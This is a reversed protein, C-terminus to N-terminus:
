GEVALFQVATKAERRFDRSEPAPHEDHGRDDSPQEDQLLVSLFCTISLDCLCSFRM